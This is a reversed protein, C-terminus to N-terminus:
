HIFPVVQRTLAVALIYVFTCLAAMGAIARVRLTKGRKLAVTGLLIYIVLAMVKATLWDFVFPYQRSLYVMLLATALLLSDIVHPLRRTLVHQLLSSDRLMWIGRVVFGTISLIACSIHTYKIFSYFDM